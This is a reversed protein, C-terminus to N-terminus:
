RVPKPLLPRITFYFIMSELLQGNKEMLQIEMKLNKKGKVSRSAIIPIEITKSRNQYLTSTAQPKYNLGITAEWKLHVRVDDATGGSNKVTFKIHAKEGADLFGEGSPEILSIREISLKPPNLEQSIADLLERASEHSPDIKLAEEVARKAKDFKKVKFYASGLNHHLHKLQPNLSIGAKFADIAAEYDQTYYYAIGLSNHVTEDNPDIPIAKKFADIAENYEENELHDSGIKAYDIPNSLPKKVTENEGKKKAIGNPVDPKFVTFILFLAAIAVLSWAFYRWSRNQQKNIAKLLQQAGQHNSDIALVEKIEDKADELHGQNYFIEAKNYHADKILDDVM